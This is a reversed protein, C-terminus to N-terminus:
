AAGGRAAIFAKLDSVTYRISRDGIRVSKPGKGERRWRQLTEPKVGLINAAQVENLLIPVGIERLNIPFVNTIM